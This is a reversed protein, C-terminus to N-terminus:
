SVATFTKTQTNKCNHGEDVIAMGFMGSLLHPFRKHSRPMLM